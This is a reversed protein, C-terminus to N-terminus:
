GFTKEFDVGLRQLILDESMQKVAVGESYPGRVARLRRVRTSRPRSTEPFASAAAALVVIAVGRM